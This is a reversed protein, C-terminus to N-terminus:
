PRLPPPASARAAQGNRVAAATAPQTMRYSATKRPTCAVHSAANTKVVCLATHSLPDCAGGLRQAVQHGHGPGAGAADLALPAVAFAHTLYSRYLAHRFM